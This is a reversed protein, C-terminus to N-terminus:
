KKPVEAPAAVAPAVAAAPVAAAAEAQLAQAIDEGKLLRIAQKLQHDNEGALEFRVPEAAEDTASAGGAKDAAAEAAAKAAKDNELYNLLLTGANEAALARAVARGIGRTGGTILTTKKHTEAPMKKNLKTSSM